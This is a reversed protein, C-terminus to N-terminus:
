RAPPESAYPLLGPAEREALTSSLPTLWTRRAADYAMPLRWTGDEGRVVLAYGRHISDAIRQGLANAAPVSLSTQASQVRPTPAHDAGGAGQRAIALESHPPPAVAWQPGRQESFWALSYPVVAIGREADITADYVASIEPDLWGSYGTLNSAPGQQVLVGEATGASATQGRNIVARSIIVSFESLNMPEQFTALEYMGAFDPTVQDEPVILWRELYMRVAAEPSLRDPPPVDLDRAAEAWRAVADEPGRLLLQPPEMTCRVEVPDGGPIAEAGVVARVHRPDAHSLPITVWGNEPERLSDIEEAIARLFRIAAGADDFRISVVPGFVQMDGEVRGHRVMLRELADTGAGGVRLSIELLPSQATEPGPAGMVLPGQAPAGVSLAWLLLAPMWLLAIPRRM